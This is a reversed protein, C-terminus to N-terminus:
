GGPLFMVIRNSLPVSEREAANRMVETWKDLDCGPKSSPSVLYSNGVLNVNGESSRYWYSKTYAWERDVDAKSMGSGRAILLTFELTGKVDSNGSEAIVNVGSGNAGLGAVGLPGNTVIRMKARQTDTAPYFIGTIEARSDRLLAMAQENTTNSFEVDLINGSDTIFEAKLQSTDTPNFTGDPNIPTEKM